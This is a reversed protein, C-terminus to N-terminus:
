SDPACRRRLLRHAHSRRLNRRPVPHNPYIPLNTSQDDPGGGIGRTARAVARRGRRRRRLGAPRPQPDDHTPPWRAIVKSVQCAEPGVQGTKGVLRQALLWGALWDDGAPTLGPGRGGARRLADAQGHAAQECLAEPLGCRALTWGAEALIGAIVKAGDVVQRQRSPRLMQWDPQPDWVVGAAPLDIM